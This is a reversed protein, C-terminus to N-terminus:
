KVGKEFHTSHIRLLVPFLAYTQGKINETGEGQSTRSFYSQQIQYQVLTSWLKRFDVPKLM